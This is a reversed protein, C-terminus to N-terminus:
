VPGQVSRGRSCVQEKLCARACEQKAFVDAKEFLGQV